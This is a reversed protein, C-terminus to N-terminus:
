ADPKTELAFMLRTFAHELHQGSDEDGKQPGYIQEYRFNMIHELVHDLHDDFPIDRWNEKGVPTGKNKEYKNEGYALVRGLALMAKPGLRKFCTTIASQLGVTGNRITLTNGDRKLFSDQDIELPEYSSYEYVQKANLPRHLPCFHKWYRPSPYISDCTAFWASKNKQWGPLLGSAYRSDAVVVAYCGVTDCDIFTHKENFSNEIVRFSM